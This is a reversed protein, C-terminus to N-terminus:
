LQPGPGQQATELGRVGLHQQCSVTMAQTEGVVKRSRGWSGRQMGESALREERGEKGRM